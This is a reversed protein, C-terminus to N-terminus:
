NKVSIDYGSERLRIMNIEITKTSQSIKIYKSLEVLRDQLIDINLEDIPDKYYINKPLSAVVATADENSKNLLDDISMFADEATSPMEFKKLSRNYEYGTYRKVLKVFYDYHFPINDKVYKRATTRGENNFIDIFKMYDLDKHQPKLKEEM